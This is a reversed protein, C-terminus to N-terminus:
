FPLDDSDDVPAAVQQKPKYQSNGGKNYGGGQTAGGTKPEPQYLTTTYKNPNDRQPSITFNAGGKADLPMNRLNQIYEEMKPVWMSIFEGYPGTRKEHYVGNLYTKDTTAM